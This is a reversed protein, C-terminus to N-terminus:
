TYKEMLEPGLDCEDYAGFDRWGMDFRIKPIDYEHFWRISVPLQEEGWYCFFLACRGMSLDLMGVPTLERFREIDEELELYGRVAPLFREAEGGRIATLDISEDENWAPLDGSGPMGGTRSLYHPSSWAYEGDSQQARIYAWTGPLGDPQLTIAQTFDMTDPRWSAARYEGVILDVRDLDVCGHCTIELSLGDSM